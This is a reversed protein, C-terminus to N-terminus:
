GVIRGERTANTDQRTYALEPKLFGEIPMYVRRLQKRPYISGKIGETIASDQSNTVISYSLNVLSDKYPEM